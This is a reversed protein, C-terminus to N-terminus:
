QPPLAASVVGMLKQADATDNRDLDAKAAQLEADLAVAGSGALKGEATLSAVQGELGYLQTYASQPGVPAAPPPAVACGSAFATLTLSAALVGRV